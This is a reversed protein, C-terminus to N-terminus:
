KKKAKIVQKIEKKYIETISFGNDVFLSKLHKHSFVKNDEPKLLPLIWNALGLGFPLWPEGVILTGGMKLVRHSEKFFDQPEDLHHLVCCITLLDFSGDDFLLKESNMIKFDIGQYRQRCVKIMNPSIDIGYAKIEAKRSIEYILKGNGCGIDLVKDGNSVSCLELVKQKFKATLKGDLSTDYEHAIRDYKKLNEESKTM